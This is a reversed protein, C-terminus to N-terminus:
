KYAVQAINPAFKQMCLTALPSLRTLRLSSTNVSAHLANAVSVKPSYSPKLGLRLRFAGPTNLNQWIFKVFYSMRM